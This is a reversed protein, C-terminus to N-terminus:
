WHIKVTKCGDLASQEVACVVKQTLLAINPWHANPHEGQLVHRSCDTFDEWMRVEQPVDLNVVREETETKVSLDMETFGHNNTVLFSAKDPRYPVVFDDLRVTGHTGAIELYQTLAQDFGCQFNARRGDSWIITAGVHLLVGESNFLPGAHASVSVPKEFNYAWLSARVCYWGMDGLCGLGDLGKKVRIDNALFAADGAFCFTCTVAKLPGMGSPELRAAIAEEMRRARDSHSWMTGDMLQVNAKQCISLIDDTVEPTLAIPKELLIHKGKHAVKKVWELHLSTPLPIYVGHVNEDELVEDYSGYPKASDSSTEQIFDKAKQLDRSGVAVVVAGNRCKAIARANKKAIAAAGLIGIGFTADGM